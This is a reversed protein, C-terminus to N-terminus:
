SLYAYTKVKLSEAFHRIALDSLKAMSRNASCKRYYGRTHCRAGGGTLAVPLPKCRAM